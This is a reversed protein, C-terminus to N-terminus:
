FDLSERVKSQLSSFTFPKPLFVDAWEIADIEGYGSTLIIPLHPRKSRITNMVEAGSMSPMSLDVVVLVPEPVLHELLKLGAAGSDAEQVEFGMAALMDKLVSRVLQEDDIVLVTGSYPKDKAESRTKPRIVELASHVPPTRDAAVPILVEFISGVGPSSQVAVAGNHSRVIGLVASLGLGRGNQKTSVFPDFILERREPDLGVGSDQVSFSVYQGQPLERNLIGHPVLGGSHHKIQTKIVITGSDSQIAESANIVLNLIVQHLLTSDGNVSPLNDAIEHSLCAKTSIATHLLDLMELYVQNLDAAKIETLGRGSYAMLHNTLGVASQAANKVEGIFYTSPHDNAIHSLALDANGLIGVLLNNFDHAIGGAMLWLSESKQHQLILKQREERLRSREEMEEQLRQNTANLAATREEVLKELLDHHQKLALQAQKSETIDRIVGVLLRTGDASTFVTKKTVITNVKGNADTLEEEKVTEGGIAFVEDDNKWFVTAQDQPFFDPDSKGLLQERTYGLYQCFSENFLVWRHLEDKVFIPDAVGDIIVNWFKDDFVPLPPQERTEPKFQVPSANIDSLKDSM